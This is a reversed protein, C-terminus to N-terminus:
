VAYLRRDYGLDDSEDKGVLLGVGIPDHERDDIETGIEALLGKGFCCFVLERLFKYQKILITIPQHSRLHNKLLVANM